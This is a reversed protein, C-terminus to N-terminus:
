GSEELRRLVTHKGGSKVPDGMFDGNRGVPQTRRGPTCAPHQHQPHQGLDNTSASQFFQDSDPVLMYLVNITLWPLVVGITFCLRLGNESDFTRSPARM